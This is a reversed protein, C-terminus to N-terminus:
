PAVMSMKLLGGASVLILPLAVKAFIALSANLQKEHISFVRPLLVLAKKIAKKAWIKHVSWRVFCQGETRRGDEWFSKTKLYSLHISPSHSRKQKPWFRAFCNFSIANKQRRFSKPNYFLPNNFSKNIYEHKNVKKTRTKKLATLGNPKTQACDVRPWLHFTAEAGNPLLFFNITSQLRPPRLFWWACVYEILFLLVVHRHLSKQVRFFFQTWSRWSLRAQM